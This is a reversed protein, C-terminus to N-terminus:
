GTFELLVEELLNVVRSDCGSSRLLNILNHQYIREFYNAIDSKVVFPWNVDQCKDQLAAQMEQWCEDHSRFMRCDPDESLLIHSFVRSRDLQSEAQPGITDVLLQYVVRDVPTLISGPRSIGNAKPIDVRIPIGAAYEGSRLSRKVIDILDDAVYVYVASYHPALVFDTLIDTRIRGLALGFDLTNVLAPDMGPM